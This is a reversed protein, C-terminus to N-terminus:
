RGEDPNLACLQEVKFSRRCIFIQRLDPLTMIGKARSEFQISVTGVYADVIVPAHVESIPIQGKAREVWVGQYINGTLPGVSSYWVPRGSTDYMYGTVLLVGGQFELFFGRGDEGPSWWWGSEPQDALFPASLGNVAFEFRELALTGGSWTLAARRSDSFDLRVNGGGGALKESAKWAGTLTQGASYRDFIGNFYKGTSDLEGTAALWIARGAPDYLFGGLFLNAENREIVFGRGAEVPNWWYGSQPRLVSATSVSDVRVMDELHPVVSSRQSRVPLASLAGGANVIPLAAIADAVAMGNATVRGFVTFGSSQSDLSAANDALNIVWQSTASDPDGDPKAMAITGRVNSRTPSFEDMIPPKAPIAKLSNSGREWVFGGGQIIFGPVSRHFVSNSYAGSNAYALFNAVTLPAAHDFLEIDIVGLSTQLSVTGARGALPLVCLVLSAIGLMWRSAPLSSAWLTVM